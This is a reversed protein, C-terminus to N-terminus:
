HLVADPRQPHRLAGDDLSAWGYLWLASKDEECLGSPEIVDYEIQALPEGGNLREDIERQFGAIASLGGM